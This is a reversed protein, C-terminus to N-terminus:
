FTLGRFPSEKKFFPSPESSCFLESKAARQLRRRNRKAEASFGAHSLSVLNQQYSSSTSAQPLRHIASSGLALISTPIAIRQTLFRRTQMLARENLFVNSLFKVTVLMSSM